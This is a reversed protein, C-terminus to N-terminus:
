GEGRSIVIRIQDRPFQFGDRQISAVSQKRCRGWALLYRLYSGEYVRMYVCVCVCEQEASERELARELLTANLLRWRVSQDRLCCLPCIGWHPM